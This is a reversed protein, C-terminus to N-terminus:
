QRRPGYTRYMSAHSDDCFPKGGTVDKGCYKCKKVVVPKSDVDPKVITQQATQAPTQVQVQQLTQAFSEGSQPKNIAKRTNNLVTMIDNIQNITNLSIM